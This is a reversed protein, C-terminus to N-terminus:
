PSTGGMTTSAQSTGNATPIAVVHRYQTWSRPDDRGAVGKPPAITLTVAVALPPGVPTVGDSGAATGDWTDQWNTGDFYEVKFDRVEEAMLKVDDDGVNPVGTDLARDSTAVKVEQRYLGKGDGIWYTVRRLDSALPQSTQSNNPDNMLLTQERPRRGQYVTLRGSDGQVGLNFTVLANTSSTDTSGGMTSSSSGSSTSATSATSAATTTGSATTTTGTTTSGTTTSGTTGLQGSQNQLYRPDTPGLSAGIDSAVRALLSRALTSQEVLTRGTDANNLQADISIYLASMLLVAIALALILELLTFAQRPSHGRATPCRM